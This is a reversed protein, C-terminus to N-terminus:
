PLEGDLATHCVFHIPLFGPVDRSQEQAVQRAHYLAIAGLQHYELGIPICLHFRAQTLDTQELLVKSKQVVSYRKKM